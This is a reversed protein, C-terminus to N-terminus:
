ETNPTLGSWGTSAMRAAQRLSTRSFWGSAIIARPTGSSATRRASFRIISMLRAQSSIWLLACHHSKGGIVDLPHIAEEIILPVQQFVPFPRGAIVDCPRGLDASQPGNERRQIRIRDQDDLCRVGVFVAIRHPRKLPKGCRGTQPRVLGHHAKGIIRLLFNRQKKIGIHQLHGMVWLNRRVRRTKVIDKGDVKINVRGFVPNDKGFRRQFQRQFGCRTKGKPDNARMQFGFGRVPGPGTILHHPNGDGIPALLQCLRNPQTRAHRRMQPLARRQHHHAVQIITGTQVFVFM